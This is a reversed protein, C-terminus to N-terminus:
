YYFVYTLLATTLFGVSVAGGRISEGSSFTIEKIEKM